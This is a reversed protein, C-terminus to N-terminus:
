HRRSPADYRNRITDVIADGQAAVALEENSGAGARISGLSTKGNVVGSGIGCSRHNVSRVRAYRSGQRSVYCGEFGDGTAIHDVDALSACQPDIVSRGITQLCSLNSDGAFGYVYFFNKLNKNLLWPNYLLRLSPLAAQQPARLYVGSDFSGRPHTKGSISSCPM